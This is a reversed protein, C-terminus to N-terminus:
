KHQNPYCFRLKALDVQCYDYKASNLAPSFSSLLTVTENGGVRCNTKYQSDLQYKEFFKNIDIKVSWVNCLKGIKKQKRFSEVCDALIGIKFTNKQFNQL